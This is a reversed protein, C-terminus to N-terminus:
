KQPITFKLIEFYEDDIDVPLLLYYYDKNQGIFQFPTNIQIDGILDHKKYIQFGFKNKGERKYGRLTYNNTVLLDTYYGYRTLQEDRSEEHEEFTKTEPLNKVDLDASSGFSYLLKGEIDRVYILSDAMFTSYLKDKYLDFNYNSFIPINKQSYIPPYHGIKQLAKGQKIDFLQFLYSEAWFDKAHDKLNYGNYHVHETLIPVLVKDGTIKLKKTRTNFEYMQNTEPNPKKMLENWDNQDYKTESLWRYPRNKRRYLTDFCYLNWSMDIGVLEKDSSYTIAVFPSIAENPGRGKEIHKHGFDGNLNFTNVGVSYADAFYFTDNGISWQGDMSTASADIRITDFSLYHIWINKGGQYPINEYESHYKEKCSLLSILYIILCINNINKM